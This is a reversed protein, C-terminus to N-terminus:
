TGDREVGREESGVVRCERNEFRTSRRTKILTIGEDGDDEDWNEAAEQSPANIEYVTEVLDYVVVEHTASGPAHLCEDQPNCMAGLLAYYMAKYKPRSRRM